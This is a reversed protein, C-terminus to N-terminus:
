GNRKRLGALQSPLLGYTKRYIEAFRGMHTFGWKLAVEHVPLIDDSSTLELHAAEAACYFSTEM